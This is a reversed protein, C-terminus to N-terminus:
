EDLPPPSGALAFTASLLAGALIVASLNAASLDDKNPADITLMGLHTADRLLPVSIYTQYPRGEEDTGKTDDVYKAERRDMWAFVRQGRGRDGDRIPRPKDERGIFYVPKLARPRSGVPRVYTYVAIRLRGVGPVLLPLASCVAGIISARTTDRASPTQSPMETLLRLIPLYADNITVDFDEREAKAARDDARRWREATVSAAVAFSVLAITAWFPLARTEDNPGLIFVASISSAALAAFSWNAPAQPMETRIFILFQELTARTAALGTKPVERETV